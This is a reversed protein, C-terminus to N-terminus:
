TQAHRCRLLRLSVFDSRALQGRRRCRRRRLLFGTSDGQALKRPRALRQVAACGSTKNATCARQSFGHWSQSYVVVSTSRPWETTEGTAAEYCGRWVPSSAAVASLENAAQRDM